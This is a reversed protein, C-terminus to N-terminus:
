TRYNGGMVIFGDETWVDMVFAENDPDRWDEDFGECGPCVTDLIGFAVDCAEDYSLSARIREMDGDGVKFKLTFSCVGDDRTDDVHAYRCWNSLLRTVATMENMESVVEDM